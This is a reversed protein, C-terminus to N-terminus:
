CKFNPDSRRMADHQKAFDFLDRATKFVHSTRAEAKRALGEIPYFSYATGFIEFNVIASKGGFIDPTKPPILLDGCFVKFAKAVQYKRM